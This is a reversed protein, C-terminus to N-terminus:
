QLEKIYDITGYIHTRLSTKDIAYYESLRGYQKVVFLKLVDSFDFRMGLLPVSRKFFCNSNVKETVFNKEDRNLKLGENLKMAINYIKSNVVNEINGRENFPVITILNQM